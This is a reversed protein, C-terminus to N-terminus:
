PTQTSIVIDCLGFSAVYFRFLMWCREVDNQKARGARFPSENKFKPGTIAGSPYKGIAIIQIYIFELLIHYGWNM